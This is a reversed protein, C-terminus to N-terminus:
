TFEVFDKGKRYINIDHRSIYCTYISTVLITCLVFWVLYYTIICAIYESMVDIYISLSLIKCLECLFYYNTMITKDKLLLQWNWDSMSSADLHLTLAIVWDWEIYGTPDERNSIAEMLREHESHPFFYCVKTSNKTSMTQLHINMGSIFNTFHYFVVCPRYDM